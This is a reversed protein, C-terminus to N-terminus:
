TYNVERGSYKVHVENIETAQSGSLTDTNDVLNLYNLAFM